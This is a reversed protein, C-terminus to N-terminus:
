KESTMTLRVFKSDICVFFHTNLYMHKLIHRLM